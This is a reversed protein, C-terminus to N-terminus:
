QAIVLFVSSKAKEVLQELPYKEQNVAEQAVPIKMTQALLELYDTKIAYNVNEPLDGTWAFVTAALLKHSVLGVVEGSMNLLPGGSNGAQVPVTIQLTRVDNDIGTVASVVGDTLKPESGMLDVHPFGLTFVQQGSKAQMRVLPLPQLMVSSDVQLIALDNSPDKAVLSAHTKSLNEGILEITDCGDVVHYCTAVYHEGLAWATGLSVDKQPETANNSEEGLWQNPLNKPYIKLLVADDAGEATSSLSFSLLGQETLYATTKNPSKDGLYWTALFANSYATASMEVKVEGPEWVARKSDIIIGVFDRTASNTDALIGIEYDRDATSWFGEVLHLAQSDYYDRLETPNLGLKERTPLEPIKVLSPDFGKYRRRLESFADSIAEGMDYAEKKTKGRLIVESAVNRLTFYFHRDPYVQISYEIQLIIEKATGPPVKSGAEIVTFGIEELAMVQNEYVCMLDNGNFKPVYVYKYANLADPSTHARMTGTNDKPSSIDECPAANGEPTVCSSLLLILLAAHTVAKM